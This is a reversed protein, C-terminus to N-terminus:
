TARYPIELWFELAKELKFELWFKKENFKPTRGKLAILWGDWGGLHVLRHFAFATVTCPHALPRAKPQTFVRAFPACGLVLREFM